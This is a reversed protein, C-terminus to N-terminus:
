DDEKRRALWIAEKEMRRALSSQKKRKEEREVLEKFVRSQMGEVSELSKLVRSMESRMVAEAMVEEVAMNKIHGMVATTSANELVELLM